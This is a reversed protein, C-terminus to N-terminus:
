IRMSRKAIPVIDERSLLGREGRILKDYYFGFTDIILSPIGEDAMKKAFPLFRETRESEQLEGQM